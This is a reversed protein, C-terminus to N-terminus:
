ENGWYREKLEKTWDVPVVEILKNIFEELHRPYFGSQENNAPFLFVFFGEDYITKTAISLLHDRWIQSLPIKKLTEIANPKFINLTTFREYENQHKNFTATAIEEQEEKLTEAYKVEIGIFGKIDGRTYEIFVDFASRDGTFKKNRRGPSHEFLIDTVTQVKDPFLQHFFNTALKMDFHLEGFLNFCLPQSSLLNEWMRDEKILKESVSKRLLEYEALLKIKHTLFNNKEKQAIYPHIFNGYKLFPLGKNERWKSQLLRAHASFDTDKPYDVNFKIREEKTPRTMVKSNKLISPLENTVKDFTRFSNWIKRTDLRLYSKFKSLCIHTNKIIM